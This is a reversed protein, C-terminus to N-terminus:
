YRGVRFGPKSQDSNSVYPSVYRLIGFPSKVVDAFTGAKWHKKDGSGVVEFWTWTLWERFRKLYERDTRLNWFIPHFHAAGRDQFELKWHFGPHPFARLFRQSFLKLHRKFTEVDVHSEAPYTLTGFIPNGCKSQDVKALSLRLRQRSKESFESIEARKPGEGQQTAFDSPEHSEFRVLSGGVYFTVTASPRIHCKSLGAAPATAPAGAAPRLVYSRSSQGTVAV